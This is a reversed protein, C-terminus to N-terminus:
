CGVVAVDPSIISMWTASLMTVVNAPLILLSDVLGSGFFEEIGM